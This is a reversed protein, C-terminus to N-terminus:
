NASALKPSAYADEILKRQKQAKLNALRIAEASRAALIAANNARQAEVIARQAEISRRNAM